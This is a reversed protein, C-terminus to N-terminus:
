YMLGNGQRMTYTSIIVIIVVAIPVVVSIAGGWARIARFWRRAIERRLLICAVRSLLRGIRATSVERRWWSTLIDVRM